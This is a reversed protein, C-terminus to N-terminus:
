AVRSKAFSLAAMSMEYDALFARAAMAILDIENADRHTIILRNPESIFVLLQAGDYGFALQDPNRNEDRFYAAIDDLTTAVESTQFPLLDSQNAVVKSGRALIVGTVSAYGRLAQLSSTLSEQNM